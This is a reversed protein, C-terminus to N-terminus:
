EDNLRVGCGRKLCIEVTIKERSMGGDFSELDVIDEATEEGRAGIKVLVSGEALEGGEAVAGREVVASDEAVAAPAAESEVGSATSNGM